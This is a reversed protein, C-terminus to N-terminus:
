KQPNKLWNEEEAPVFNVDNRAQTVLVTRAEYSYESNEVRIAYAKGTEVNEFKYRGQEDTEVSRTTGDREVLTVIARSVGRENARFLKGGIVVPLPYFIVPEYEVAGIDVASGYKRTFGFGRQDYQFIAICPEGLTICDDGADIAPSGELLKHTDTQGGNNKLTSLKPDLYEPLDSAVYGTSGGRYGVLNNGLSTFSGYLDWSVAAGNKAVITNGVYNYRNQEDSNIFWIGGGADHYGQNKTITSNRIVGSDTQAIGGGGKWGTNGSITTNYVFLGGGRSFIGGGRNDSYNDRITSDSITMQSMFSYIGGGDGNGPQNNATWNTKNNRVTVAKLTLNTNYIYIGGGVSYSFQPNPLGNQITLGSIAVINPQNGFQTFFQMVRDKQAGDVALQRAGPGNITLGSNVFLERLSLTITRPQNPTHFGPSFEITDHGPLANAEEIAARLTCVPFTAACIGDGPTKDHMDGDSNVTFMAAQATSITALVLACFLVLNTIYSKRQKKMFNINEGLIM